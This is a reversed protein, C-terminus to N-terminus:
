AQFTHIHTYIDKYTQLVAWVCGSQCKSFTPTSGFFLYKGGEGDGGGSRQWGGKKESEKVECGWRERGGEKGGVSREDQGRGGCAGSSIHM